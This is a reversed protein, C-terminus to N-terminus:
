PGSGDADVVGLPTPLEAYADIPDRYEVPAGIQEAYAVEAAIGASEEWGLLKLVVVRNSLGIMFEDRERWFDYETPLGWQVACMHHHAIPSYYIAGHDAAMARNIWDRVLQHRKERVRAEPHSYPSAVYVLNM